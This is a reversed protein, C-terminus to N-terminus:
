FRATRGPGIGSSHSPREERPRAENVTLHRGEWPRGDLAKIAAEAEESTSLTVFAFGRSKGTLKDQVVNIQTINGHAAFLERLANEATDYSLNGVYLKTNM